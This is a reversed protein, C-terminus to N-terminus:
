PETHSQKISNWDAEIIILDSEVSGLTNEIAGAKM